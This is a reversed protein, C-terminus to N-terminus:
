GTSFLCILNDTNATNMANTIKSAKINRVANHVSELKSPM